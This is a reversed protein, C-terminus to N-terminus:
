VALTRAKKAARARLRQGVCVATLAVVTVAEGYAALMAFSELM